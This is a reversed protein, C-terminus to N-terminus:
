EDCRYLSPLLEFDKNIVTIMTSGQSISDRDSNELGNILLNMAKNINETLQIWKIYNLSNKSDPILNEVQANLRTLANNKIINLSRAAGTAEFSSMDSDYFNQLTIEMPGSTLQFDIYVDSIEKGYQICIEIEEYITTTSSSTTTTEKVTTTTTTPEEAVEAGGCALFILLLILLKKM